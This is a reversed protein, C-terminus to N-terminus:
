SQVRNMVPQDQRGPRSAPIHAHQGTRKLSALGVIGSRERGGLLLRKRLEVFHERSQCRRLSVEDASTSHDRDEVYLLFLGWPRCM